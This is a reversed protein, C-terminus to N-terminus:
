LLANLGVLLAAMAALFCAGVLIWGIATKLSRDPRRRWDGERFISELNNMWEGGARQAFRWRFRDLGAPVPGLCSGAAVPGSDAIPEACAGPPAM